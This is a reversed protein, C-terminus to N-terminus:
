PFLDLLNPVFITCVNEYDHGYAWEILEKMKFNVISLTHEDEVNGMVQVITM